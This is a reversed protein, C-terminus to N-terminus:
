RAPSKHRLCPRVPNNGPACITKYIFWFPSERLRWWQAVTATFIATVVPRMYLGMATEPRKRMSSRADLFGNAQNGPDIQPASLNPEKDMCNKTHEPYSANVAITKM